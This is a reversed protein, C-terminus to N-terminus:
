KGLYKHAKRQEIFKANIDKIKTNILDFTRNIQQVTRKKKTFYDKNLFATNIGPKNKPEIVNTM